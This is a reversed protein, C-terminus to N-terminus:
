YVHHISYVHHFSKKMSILLLSPGLLRSSPFIKFTKICCKGLSFKVIDKLMGIQMSFFDYTTILVCREKLFHTKPWALYSVYQFNIFTINRILTHHISFSRLILYVHLVNILFLLTHITKRSCCSINCYKQVLTWPDKVCSVVYKILASNQWPLLVNCVKFAM